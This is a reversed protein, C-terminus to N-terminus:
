TRPHRSFAAECGGVKPIVVMNITDFLRGILSQTKLGIKQCDIQIENQRQEGSEKLLYQRRQCNRWWLLWEQRSHCRSYLNLDFSVRCLPRDVIAVDIM